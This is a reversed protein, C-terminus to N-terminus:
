DENVNGSLAPVNVVIVTLDDHQAAKGAFDNVRNLVEELLSAADMSDAGKVVELLREFGFIQEKENMAEVIGDTYFVVKDGVALKLATERYDADELIGLPFTDGETQVLMSEGKGASFHIPQTQGASCMSITRDRGDIVAYLLAVFMGSKIDKKTRKNARIM